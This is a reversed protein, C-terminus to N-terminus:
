NVKGINGFTGLREYQVKLYYDFDFFVNFLLIINSKKSGAFKRKVLESYHLHILLFTINESYKTPFCVLSHMYRNEIPIRNIMQAAYCMSLSIFRNLYSKKFIKKEKKASGMELFNM